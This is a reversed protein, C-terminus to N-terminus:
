KLNPANGEAEPHNTSVWCRRPALACEDSAGKLEDGLDASFLRKAELQSFSKLIRSARWDVEYAQFTGFSDCNSHAVIEAAVIVSGSATWRIGGINPLEKWGCKVPFGFRREVLASLDRVVPGKQGRGVVITRFHGNAGDDSTTVFFADSSPSWVLESAVGAGLSVTRKGISGNTTIRVYGDGVDAFRAVAVSKGDPSTVRVQHNLDSGLQGWIPAAHSSYIGSASAQDPATAYALVSLVTALGVLRLNKTSGVSM